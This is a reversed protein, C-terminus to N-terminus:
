PNPVGLALRSSGLLLGLVTLAIMLDRAPLEAGHQRALEEHTFGNTPNIVM